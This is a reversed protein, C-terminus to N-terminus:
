QGPELRAACFEREAGALSRLPIRQVISGGAGRVILEAPPSAFSAFAVRGGGLSAPVPATALRQSGSASRALVSDRAAPLRGTIITSPVPACVAWATAQLPARRGPLPEPEGVVADGETLPDIQAHGKPGETYLLRYHIAGPAVGSALPAFRNAAPAPMPATHCIQGGAIPESRLRRGSPDLFTLRVPPSGTTAQFYEGGGGLAAPIAVIDSTISRGDALLMRGRTAGAPAREQFTRTGETCGQQLFARAPGPGGGTECGGSSSSSLTILSGSLPQTPPIYEVEIQPSCVPKTGATARDRICM